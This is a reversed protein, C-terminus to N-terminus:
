GIRDVVHNGARCVWVAIGDRLEPHQGVRHQQCVPWMVRDRSAILSQVADAIWVLTLARPLYSSRFGECLISM